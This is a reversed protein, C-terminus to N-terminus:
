QRVVEGRRPAPWMRWEEFAAQAQAVVADYNKRNVTNVAAIKKGDVPSDSIIKEGGAKKWKTGTFVGESIKDIGLQKLEKQM